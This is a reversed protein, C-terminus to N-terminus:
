NIRINKNLMETKARELKEEIDKKGPGRKAM